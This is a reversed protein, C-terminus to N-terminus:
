DGDDEFTKKVVFIKYDKHNNCEIDFVHKKEIIYNIENSSTPTKQNCHRKFIFDKWNYPKKNM